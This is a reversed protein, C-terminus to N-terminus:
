EELRKGITLLFLKLVNRAITPFLSVRKSLFQSSKM